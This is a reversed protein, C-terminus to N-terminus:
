QNTDALAVRLGLAILVIGTLREIWHSLAEVRRRVSHHGIIASLIAFCGFELAVITLGYVAQALLPTGPSVVQTFLALFFLTAKPNLLDTLFGTRLASRCTFAPSIISQGALFHPQARLSRIGLYILYAAGLWRVINFLVISQSILLGIGALCYTIHVLNGLALGAATHVGARRSHILSNRIVIAMNPGPTIVVFWGVILVSLLNSLHM